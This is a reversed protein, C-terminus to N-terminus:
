PPASIFAVMGDEILWRNKALPLGSVGFVANHGERDLPQGISPFLGEYGVPLFDPPWGRLAEGFFEAVRGSESANSAPAIADGRDVHVCRVFLDKSLGDIAMTLRGNDEAGRCAFEMQRVPVVAFAAV